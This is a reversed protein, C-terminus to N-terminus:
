RPCAPLCTAQSSHAHSNWWPAEFLLALADHRRWIGASISLHPDARRSRRPSRTSPRPRAGSQRRSAIIAHHTHALINSQLDRPAWALLRAGYSRRTDNAAPQHTWRFFSTYHDDPRHRIAFLPASDSYCHTRSQTFRTPDGRVTACAAGARGAAREAAVALCVADLRAPGADALPSRRVRHAHLPRASAGVARAPDGLLALLPARLARHPIHHLLVAPLRLVQHHLFHCIPM